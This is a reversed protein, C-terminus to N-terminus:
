IHHKSIVRRVDDVCAKSRKLIITTFPLYGEAPLKILYLSENSFLISYIVFSFGDMYVITTREWVCIPRHMVTRGDTREWSLTYTPLKKLQVHLGVQQISKSQQTSRYGVTLFYIVLLKYKDLHPKASCKMKGLVIKSMKQGVSKDM